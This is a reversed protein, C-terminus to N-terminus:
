KRAGKESQIYVDFGDSDMHSYMFGDKTLQKLIKAEIKSLAADRKCLFDSNSCNRVRPAEYMWPWNGPGFKANIEELRQNIIGDSDLIKAIEAVQEKSAFRVKFEKTM